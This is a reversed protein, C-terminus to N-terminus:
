EGRRSTGGFDLRDWWFLFLRTTRCFGTLAPRETTRSKYQILFGHVCSFIRNM